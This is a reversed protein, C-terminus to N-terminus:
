DYYEPISVDTEAQAFIDILFQRTLYYATIESTMRMYVIYVKNYRRFLVHSCYGSSSSGFCIYNLDLNFFNNILVTANLAHPLSLQPRLSDNELIQINNENQLHADIRAIVSGLDYNDPPMDPPMDRM